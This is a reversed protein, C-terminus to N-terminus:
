SRTMRYLRHTKIYRRVSDPIQFRASQGRALDRRLGHSNIGCLPMDIRTVRQRLSRPIKSWPAQPREVVLFRCQRLLATGMRWRPINQLSDSGIMSYLTSRPFYKKFAELLQFTYVPRGQRIDWDSVELRPVGRVALRVMALRDRAPAQPKEKYSPQGTPLFIVRDLHAQELAAEAIWLHGVHVPDFTGGFLGVRM